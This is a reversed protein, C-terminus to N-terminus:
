VQLLYVRVVKAIGNSLKIKTIIKPIDSYVNVYTEEKSLISGIICGFTSSYKLQSKLKTNDTM